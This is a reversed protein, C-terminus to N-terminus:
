AAGAPTEGAPPSVPAGADRGADAPAGADGRDISVRGDSMLAVTSTSDLEDMGPAETVCGAHAVALLLLLVRRM